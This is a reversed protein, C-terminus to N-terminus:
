KHKEKLEARLFSYFRMSGFFLFQIEENTKNQDKLIQLQTKFDGRNAIKNFFHVQIPLNQIKQVDIYNYFTGQTTEVELLYFCCDIKELISQFPLLLEKLNREKMVNFFIIWKHKITNTLLWNTLNIIAEQNHASDFLFDQRLWQMRAPLSLSFAKKELQQMDQFSLNPQFLKVFVQLIIFFNAKLYNGTKIYQQYKSDEIFEMVLDNEKCYRELLNAVKNKQPFSFNQSNRKIIGAKELAIDEIRNGLINQHDLGIPTLITSLPEIINTSDLRGGLGTEIVAIDIDQQAFWLFALATLADFYSLSVLNKHKQLDKWLVSLEKELIKKGNIQFREHITQLHPSSYLGVKAFQSQLLRMLFISSSGKGNTGAIHITQFKTQPNNIKQLFEKLPINSYQYNSFRRSNEFNKQSFFSLIKKECSNKSPM